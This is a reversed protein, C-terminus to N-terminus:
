AKYLLGIVVLTVMFFHQQLYLPMHLFQQRFRGPRSEFPVATGVAKRGVPSGLLAVSLQKLHVKGQRLYGTKHLCHMIQMM